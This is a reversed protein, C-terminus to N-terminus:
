ENVLNFGYIENSIRFKPKDDLDIDRLLSFNVGITSISNRFSITSIVNEKEPTLYKELNLKYISLDLGITKRRTLRRLSRKTSLYLIM